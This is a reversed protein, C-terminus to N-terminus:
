AGRRPAFASRFDAWGTPFLASRLRPLAAIVRGAVLSLAITALLIGVRAPWGAREDIRLAALLAYFVLTHCLYIVFSERGLFALVRSAGAPLPLASLTLFASLLLADQVFLTPLDLSAVQFSAGTCFLAAGSVLAAAAAPWLLAGPAVRGWLARACAAPFLLFAATRVFWPAGGPSAEPLLALGVHVVAALAPALAGAWRRLATDFLTFSILAPLFWLMVVGAVGKLSAETPAVVCSLLGMPLERLGVGRRLVLTFVLAYILLFALYPIEYRLLKDALKRRDPLGKSLCASLLFFSQVHFLYVMRRFDGFVSTILSNHGIVILLILIGKLRDIAMSPGEKAASRDM